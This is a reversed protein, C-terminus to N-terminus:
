KITWSIKGLKGWDGQYSGPKGPIMNGIAGTILIQGPEIVYGRYIAGNVLWLLAKWQDGMVDDAKGQNVVNGDLTLTVTVQSVDVSDSPMRTGVIYKSSSVADVILDTGKLGKLDDFRLDPLETAPCVEKILKKLADVDAVPKDIKTGPIYGIETEVFLRVFDKANVVADPGLEGPKFLPGLLASKVGFKQQGAESTLGAKFGGIVQSKSVLKDSLQKQLAYAKGENLDPLSASPLAFPKIASRADVISNIIDQESALGQGPFWFFGVAAQLLLVMAVKKM